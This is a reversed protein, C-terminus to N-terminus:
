GGGVEGGAEWAFRLTAIERPRLPLTVTDTNRGLSVLAPGEDLRVLVAEEFERWLTVWAQVPDPASNYVRVILGRGEEPAKATSLVVAAPSVEVFSLAPPLPGAHTTTSTARLPAGFAHAEQLAAEQASGVAGLYGGQHLVLGYHFTHEGPCQAEPVPVEPGAGGARNRLDGRSLWGVGRLLTLAVTV